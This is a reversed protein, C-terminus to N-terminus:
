STLRLTMEEAALFGLKTYLARAEDSPHLTLGLFGAARAYDILREMIALAIGHRRAAPEVYVSHVRGTSSSTSGPRPVSLQVLLAGSAVPRGDQEAIFAVYTVNAVSTAIFAVWISIQPALAAASWDGVEIWVAARHRALLEADAPVARRIEV